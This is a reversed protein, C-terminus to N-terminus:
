EISDYVKMPKCPLRHFEGTLGSTKAFSASPQKSIVVSMLFKGMGSMLELLTSYGLNIAFDITNDIGNLGKM